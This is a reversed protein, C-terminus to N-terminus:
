RCEALGQQLVISRALMHIGRFAQSWIRCHRTQVYVCFLATQYNTTPTKGSLLCATWKTM